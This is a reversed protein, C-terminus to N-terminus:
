DRTLTISDTDTLGDDDTVRVRITRQDCFDTHVTVNQGTTEYAGDGDLDWEYSIIEDSDATSANAHLTVTRNGHFTRNAANKPSTEIIVNPADMEDGAVQHDLSPRHDSSELVHLESEESLVGLWEHVTVYLKGDAVVPAYPVLPSSESVSYNWQEQGTSADLSYIAPSAPRDSHRTFHRGGVYVSDNTATPASLHDAATDYTWQEDGTAADLAYVTGHGDGRTSVYVTDNRVAPESIEDRETSDARAVSHTWVVSGDDTSLAYVPQTDGDTEATLFIRDSTVASDFGETAHPNSVNWKPAGSSADMASVTTGNQAYATGNVVGIIRQGYASWLEDGTEADYATNAVYVVGDAVIPSAQASNNVRWQVEGTAADLAYLGGNHDYDDAHTGRTQVYVTGNDVAPAGTAAGVTTSKWRQDGTEADYAVVYGEAPLEANTTISVYATGNVVAAGSDARAGFQTSWDETAYPAPGTDNTAGTRGSDARDSAWGDDASTQSQPATAAVFSISSVVVLLALVLGVRARNRKM